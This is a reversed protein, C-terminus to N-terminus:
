ARSGPATGASPELDETRTPTAAGPAPTVAPTPEPPADKGDESLAATEAKFIRLSRGIGRAADPMRKAGFLLLVVVLIIVWHSPSLAGTM